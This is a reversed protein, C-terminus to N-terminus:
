PMGSWPDVTEVGCRALDSVNRTVVVLGHAHATAAILCDVVPLPGRAAQLAGWREAIEATVPLVRAALARVVAALRADLAQAATADRPRLREIGLRMEGLTLVSM